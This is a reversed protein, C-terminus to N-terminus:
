MPSATDIPTFSIISYKSMPTPIFREFPQSFAAVCTAPEGAGAILAPSMAAAQRIKMASHQIDGFSIEDTIPPEGANEPPSMKLGGM